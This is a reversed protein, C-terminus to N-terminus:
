SHIITHIYTNYCFILFICFSHCLAVLGKFLLKLYNRRCICFTCELKDAVINVVSASPKSPHGKSINFILEAQSQAPPFSFISPNLRFFFRQFNTGFWELVLFFVRIVKEEFYRRIKNAKAVNRVESHDIGLYGKSYCFGYRTQEESKKRFLTKIAFRCPLPRQIM